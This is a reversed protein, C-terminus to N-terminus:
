LNLNENLLHILVKSLGTTNIYPLFTRYKYPLM